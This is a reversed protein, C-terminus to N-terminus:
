WVDAPKTFVHEGLVEPATWRLALTGERDPPITCSASGDSRALGFDCLKAVQGPLMRVHLLDLFHCEHTSSPM